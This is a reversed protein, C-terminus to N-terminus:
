TDQSWPSEISAISMSFSVSKGFLKGGSSCHSCCPILEGDNGAHEMPHGIPHGTSVHRIGHYPVTCLRVSSWLAIHCSLYYTGSRAASETLVSAPAAAVLRSMKVRSAIKKVRGLSNSLSKIRSTKHNCSTECTSIARGFDSRVESSLVASDDARALPPAPRGGRRSVVGGNRSVVGGHKSAISINKAVLAPMPFYPM